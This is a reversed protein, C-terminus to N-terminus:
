KGNHQQNERMRVQWRTNLVASLETFALHINNLTKKKKAIEDSTAETMTTTADFVYIDNIARVMALANKERQKFKEGTKMEIRDGWVMM